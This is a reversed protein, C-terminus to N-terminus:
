RWGAPRDAPPACRRSATRDPRRARPSGAPARGRRASTRRRAACRRDRRPARPIARLDHRLDPDRHRMAPHRRGLEFLHHGREVLAGVVQQQRGVDDFGAEVDRGGVRQDHMAGVHEAQRLEILQAAADAAALHAGIAIQGQGLLLLQRRGRLAPELHHLRQVREAGPKLQRAVIEVDAAGAIQEAVLLRAMDALDADLEVLVHQLLRDRRRLRRRRRPGSPPSSSHVGCIVIPM